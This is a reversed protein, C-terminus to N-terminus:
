RSYSIKLESWVNKPIEAGVFQVVTGGTINGFKACEIYPLGKLYGHLFGSAFLDGAGTSDLPKIPIAPCTEIDNNHGVLCGQEGLM